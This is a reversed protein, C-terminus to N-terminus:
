AYIINTGINVIVNLQSLLLHPPSREERKEGRRKRGKEREEGREGGKRPSRFTKWWCSRLAWMLGTETSYQAFIMNSKM